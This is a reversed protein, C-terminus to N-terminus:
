YTYTLREPFGDLIFIVQNNDESKLASIDFSTEQTFYALCAEKNELSLRLKRTIPNSELIEDSDILQVKWSNGDCGSAGYEITLCDGMISASVIQVMDNPGTKYLVDSVVLAEDCQSVQSKEKNCSWTGILVFILTVSLIFVNKM